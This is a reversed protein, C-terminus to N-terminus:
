PDSYIDESYNMDYASCNYAKIFFIRPSNMFFMITIIVVERM